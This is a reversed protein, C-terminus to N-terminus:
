CFCRFLSLIGTGKRLRKNFLERPRLEQAFDTVNQRIKDTGDVVKDLGVKDLKLKAALRDNKQAATLRQADDDDIQIGLDLPLNKIM